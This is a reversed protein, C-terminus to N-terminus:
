TTMKLATSIKGNKDWIALAIKLKEMVNMRRIYDSRYWEKIEVAREPFQDIILDEANLSRAQVRGNACAYLTARPAHFRNTVVLATKIRHSLAIESLKAMNTATNVSDNETFITPSLLEANDGRLKNIANALYHRETDRDEHPDKRGNLLVIVPAMQRCYAIAAADLRMKGCYDPELEGTNTKFIGAGPVVIADANFSLNERETTMCSVPKGVIGHVANLTNRIDLLPPTAVIVTVIWGIEKLVDRRSLKNEPNM